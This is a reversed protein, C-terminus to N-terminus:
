RVSPIFQYNLGSPLHLHKALRFRLLLGAEYGVKANGASFTADGVTVPAVSYDVTNVGGRVGVRLCQAHAAVCTGLLMLGMLMIRKM